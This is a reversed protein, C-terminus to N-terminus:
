DELMRELSRGRGMGLRRSPDETTGDPLRVFIHYVAYGPKRRWRFAPRAAIKEREVIEAARWCALDECDGYRDRLVSPIDRWNEQGIPEARYVVGARYLAPTTPHARLWIRNINFLADLLVSLRAESLPRSAEGSFADLVFRVKFV